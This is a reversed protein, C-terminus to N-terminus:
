LVAFRTKLCDGLLDAGDRPDESLFRGTMPDYYRARYYYLATASDFQRATYRFWNTASGTSERMFGFSDYTYTAAVAGTRDTLSTVSAM